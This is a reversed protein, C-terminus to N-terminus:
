DDKDEKRLWGARKFAPDPYTYFGKDTTVGLEGRDVLDTLIAPPEDGYMREVNMINRLGVGDMMAFPGSETGFSLMFARDLDEVSAIGEDALRLYERKIARWTRNFAYGPSDKKLRFCVQGIAKAWQEAADLTEASTGPFDGAADAGMLEVFSLLLPEDFNMNFFQMPRGSAKALPACPIAATNSGMLTAPAALRGIEAHVQLKIPLDEAINEFVLDVDAVAAALNEADVLRSLAEEPSASQPTCEVLWTAIDTRAEALTEPRRSWIKVELGHAICAWAVRRGMMGAGIIAIKRIVM